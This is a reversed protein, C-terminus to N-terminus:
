YEKIEEIRQRTLSLLCASTLAQLTRASIMDAAVRARCEADRFRVWERQAELLYSKAQEIHDPRSSRRELEAQKSEIALMLAKDAQEFQWRDCADNSGIGPPCPLDQARAEPAAAGLVLALMVAAVRTKSMSKGISPLWTLDRRGPVFEVIAFSPPARLPVIATQATCDAARPPTGNEGM